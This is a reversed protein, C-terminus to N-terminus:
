FMWWVTWIKGGHSKQAKGVMFHLELALFKVTILLRCCTKSFHTSCQLFLMGQWLLYKLFSVMVAGESLELKSYYTSDVFNANIGYIIDKNM